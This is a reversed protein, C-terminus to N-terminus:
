DAPAAEIAEAVAGALTKGIPAPIDAPAIEVAEVGAEEPCAPPFAEEQTAARAKWGHRTRSPDIGLSSSVAALAESEEAVGLVMALDVGNESVVFCRGDKGTVIRQM